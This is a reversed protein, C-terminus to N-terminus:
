YHLTGTPHPDAFVYVAQAMQVYDTFKKRLHRVAFAFTTVCFFREKQSRNQSHGHKLRCLM